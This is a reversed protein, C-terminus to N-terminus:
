FLHLLMCNDLVIACELSVMSGSDSFVRRKKILLNAMTGTHFLFKNGITAGTTLVFIISAFGHMYNFECSAVPSVSVLRSLMM